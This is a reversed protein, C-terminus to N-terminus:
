PRPHTQDWQIAWSSRKVRRGNVTHYLPIAPRTPPVVKPRPAVVPHPKKVVPAPKKMTPPPVVAAVPPAPVPIVPPVPVPPAVPAPTVPTAPATAQVPAPTPPDHRLPWEQRARLGVLSIVALTALVYRVAPAPFEGGLAPMLRALGGGILVFLLPLIPTFQATGGTAFQVCSGVVLSLLTWLVVPLWRARRVADGLEGCFPLLFWLLFLLSPGFLFTGLAGDWALTLPPMAHTQLGVFLAGATLVVFLAAGLAARQRHQALTLTLLILGLLAGDARFGAALAALGLAALSSGAVFVFLSAVALLTFLATHLDAPCSAMFAASTALLLAGAIGAVRGSARWGLLYSLAVTVVGALTGYWNNGHLDLAWASLGVFLAALGAMWLADIAQFRPRTNKASVRGGRPLPRPLGEAPPTPAPTQAM